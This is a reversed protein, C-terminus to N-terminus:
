ETSAPPEALTPADSNRTLQTVQELVPLPADATVGLETFRRAQPLV